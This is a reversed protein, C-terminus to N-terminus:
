GKPASEPRPQFIVKVEEPLVRVHTVGPPASVEIRKRFGGVAEVGTLDVIPRIDTSKLAQLVKADGQVTVEVEKPAIKFDHVDAASSLVVVPLNYFTYRELSLHLPGTPSVEKQIAFSVTFWILVALALSFLKLWFDGFILNRLFTIM